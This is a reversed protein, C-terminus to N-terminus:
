RIGIIEGTEIDLDINEAAPETPLAPLTSIEGCYAVIFGAGAFLKLDTVTIKFGRPRGILKPNDSLSLPTKAVNIPLNAYGWRRIRRISAKAEDTFIVDDAGYMERAIIKIKEEISLNVDYLPKFESKRNRITDLVVKALEIGGEGGKAYVESVAVPINREKCWNIVAEIEEKSDGEFKNIAVVPPIRFKMVNEVHKELNELGRKVAELNQKTIDEAGGHERLARISLVIIGVDPKLGGIRCPINCFKEFGLDSGFGAEAIVYDALKLAMKISILSPSGHAVNAFPVGHVFAPTGEMTQVLNPKLSDRMIAAMCGVCKIEEAKVPKGDKNLAVIINKLREKLDKYNMALAHIAATECATTIEFGTERPIGGEKGGLGIVIKRLPRDEMDQVRKIFINHLDIQPDKGRYIHNDLMANMLHHAMTIAHTDGTFHLNIEEMPLIQSRGGGTAGGKIGFTVGMSPQRVVVINKHNLKWLAQGLGIATTTKGEGAKTPTIATIVILKGDPKSENKNYVELKIKAKYNGYLEIDESTLGIMAAVETIPRLKVKEGM